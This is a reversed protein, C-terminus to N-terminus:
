TQEGEDERGERGAWLVTVVREQDAETVVCLRGGVLCMRGQSPYTVEPAALVREIEDETVGMQKRRRKAHDTLIM